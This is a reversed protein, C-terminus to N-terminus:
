RGGGQGSLERLSEARRRLVKGERPERSARDKLFGEGESGEGNGLLIKMGQRKWLKNGLGDWNLEAAAVPM